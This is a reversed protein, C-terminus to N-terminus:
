SERLVMSHVLRREVLETRLQNADKFVIVDFGMAAAAEANDINDDIFVIDAPQLGLRDLLIRFVEPDPKAYGVEGSIIRPGLRDIGPLHSLAHHFLERPWNSLVATPVSLAKLDDIIDFIGPIAGRLTAPYRAVYRDFIEVDDPHHSKFWGRIESLDGGADLVQNVRWFDTRRTFEEWEQRTLFGEQSRYPDWKIVVQGLDFVVTRM